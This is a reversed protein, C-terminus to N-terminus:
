SAVPTGDDYAATVSAYFGNKPEIGAEFQGIQSVDAELGVNVQFPTVGSLTLPVIFCVLDQSSGHGIRELANLELQTVIVRM